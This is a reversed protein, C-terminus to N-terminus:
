GNLTEVLEFEEVVLVTDDSLPNGEEEMEGAWAERHDQRFAEADDGFGEGRVVGPAPLGFTTEYVAVMRVRCRPEDNEDVVDVIEGRADVVEALEEETYDSRPACTATKEGEIVERILREGLGGDGEWGFELRYDTM